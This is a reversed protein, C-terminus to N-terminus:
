AVGADHRVDIVADGRVTFRVDGHLPERALRELLPEHAARERRAGDGLEPPAHEVREGGSVLAADDV